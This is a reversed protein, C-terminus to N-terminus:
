SNKGISAIRRCMEPYLEAKIYSIIKENKKGLINSRVRVEDSQMQHMDLLLHGFPKNRTADNFCDSIFTPNQSDIQSSYLRISKNESPNFMLIVYTANRRIDTMFDAKPFLNQIIFFVTINCHHSRKTFLESINMDNYAKHM